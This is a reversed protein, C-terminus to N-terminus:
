HNGCVCILAIDPHVQSFIDKLDQIQQKRVRDVVPKDWKWFSNPNNYYFSEEMDVMDGCVCVYKPRPQLLNIKKVAARCYGIETDWERNLTTMGLQPDACVVFRHCKSHTELESLSNTKLSSTPHVQSAHNRIEGEDPQEEGNIFHCYMPSRSSSNSDKVNISQGPFTLTSTPSPSNDDMLSTKTSDEQSIENGVGEQSHKRSGNLAASLRAKLEGDCAHFSTDKPPNKQLFLAEDEFMPQKLTPHNLTRNKQTETFDLKSSRNNDSPSSTNYNIRNWLETATNNSQQITSLSPKDIASM